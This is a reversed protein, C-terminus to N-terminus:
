AGLSQSRAMGTSKYATPGPILGGGGGQIGFRGMVPIQGGFMGIGKGLDRSGSRSIPPGGSKGTGGSAFPKYEFLREGRTEKV